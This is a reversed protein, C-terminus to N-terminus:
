PATLTYTVTATYNGVAYDWSNALFYLFSGSRNGSGTWSGVATGGLSMAGGAPTFGADGFATWTVNGIDITDTGNDLDGLATVTLDVTSGSGTHAKVEVSVGSPANETAEISPTADPDAAPFHIEAVGLTLKARNAVEANIVLNKSDTASWGAAVVSMLMVGALMVCLIARRQEM